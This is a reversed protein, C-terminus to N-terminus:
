CRLLMFRMDSTVAVGQRTDARGDFCTNVDIVRFVTGTNATQHLGFASNLAPESFPTTAAGSQVPDFEHTWAKGVVLPLPSGAPNVTWYDKTEELSLKAWESPEIYERGTVEKRWPIQIVASFNRQTGTNRAIEISDANFTCGHLVCRIAFTM